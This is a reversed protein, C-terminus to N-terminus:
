LSTKYKPKRKKLHTHMTKKKPSPYRIWFSNFGSLLSIYAHICVDFMTYQYANIKKVDCSHIHDYQIHDYHSM